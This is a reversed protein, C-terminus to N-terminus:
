NAGRIKRELHKVREQRAELMETMATKISSLANSLERIKNKNDELANDKEERTQELEEKLQQIMIRLEKEASNKLELNGTAFDKKAYKNAVSLKILFNKLNSISINDLSTNQM